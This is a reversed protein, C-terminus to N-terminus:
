EPTFQCGEGSELRNFEIRIVADVYVNFACGSKDYLTLGHLYSEQKSTCGSLVLVIGVLLWVPWAKWILGAVVGVFRALAKKQERNM